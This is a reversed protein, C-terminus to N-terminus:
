NKKVYLIGIFIVLIISILLCYDKKTSTIPMFLKDHKVHLPANCLDDNVTFEIIENNRKYGKDVYKEKLYYDGYELKINYKGDITKGSYILNDKKDYIEFEINIKNSSEDQSIIVIECKIKKNVINVEKEIINDKDNIYDINVEYKNDDILYGYLPRIEKIYYKGLSLLETEIVGAKNTKYQNILEGNEDYLGFIVDKLKEKEENTKNIIIKGKTKENYFDINKITDNKDINFKLIENNVHYMNSANIEKIEYDGIPLDLNILGNKFEYKKDNILVENGDDLILNNTDKDKKNITVKSKNVKINFQGSKLIPSGFTALDQTRINTNDYALTQANYNVIPKISLIYDGQKNTEIILKNNEQKVNVGSSANVIYNDLVNNNDILEIHNLTSTEYTNNNFSPLIDKKNILNLIENKEKDVNIEETDSTSGVTWKIREDKSLLWILEQTAMYYKLTNHNKFGYGYYSYLEMLRKQEENYGTISFDTFSSYTSTNIKSDPQVCYALVNNAYNYPLKGYTWVKGNRYHFSWVNEIDTKTVYTDNELAKISSIKCFIISIFIVFIISLVKKMKKVEILKNVSVFFIGSFFLMKISKRKQKEM